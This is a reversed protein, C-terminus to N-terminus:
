GLKLMSGVLNHSVLFGAKPYSPPGRFRAGCTIGGNTEAPPTTQGNRPDRDSDRTSVAVWAQFTDESNKLPATWSWHSKRGRFYAGRARAGGRGWFRFGLLSGSVTVLVAHSHYGDQFLMDHRQAVVQEPSPLIWTSGFALAAAFPVTSKWRVSFECESAANWFGTVGCERVGCKGMFGCERSVGCESAVNGSAVNRGSAANGASAANRRWMRQRLIKPQRRTTVGGEGVGCEGRVGCEQAVGCEASAVNRGSAANKASAANRRWMGQRWMGAERVGCERSVGCESAVNGSAVNRASAANGASAANQRWM